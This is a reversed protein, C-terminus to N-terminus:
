ATNRNRRRTAAMGGIAAILLWGAAPLPVPTSTVLVDYAATGGHDERLIQLYNTGRAFNGLDLQFEGPVSGGGRLQGGLFNGNLWVFIGNDVGFSAHVKQIDNSAVDFEYIIATETNVSWARPISQPTSSWTGGPSSPSSLWNGLASSAASLDPESTAPIDLSPDGDSVNAGPFMYTGMFANTRDLSTGIGDNYYGATANHILTTAQAAPTASIMGAGLAILGASVLLSFHKVM